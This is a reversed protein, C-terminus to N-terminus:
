SKPNLPTEKKEKAKNYIDLLKEATKEDGLCDRYTRSEYLTINPDIEFSITKAKNLSALAQDCEKLLSESIGLYMYAESLQSEGGYSIAEEFQKKAVAFDGSRFVVKGFELRASTYVDAVDSLMLHRYRSLIGGNPNHFTGWLDLNEKVMAETLPLNDKSILENIIGYPVWFWGDELPYKAYSFVRNQKTNSLLFTHFFDGESPIILSPFLKKISVQYDSFLLKTGHLLIVDQRYNRAYRVYQSTFLTTDRNVLLISNQPLGALLDVGLNEATFDSSYGWFKVFTTGTVILPFLFVVVCFNRPIKGKIYAFGVGIVVSLLVYSPLLFREYTALTFRGALPFSAYFLFGPGMLGIAILFFIFYSRKKRWLSLLGVVILFIGVWTFDIRLYKVFAQIQLLRQIPLAGIVGSSQFTGYDARTVLHIFNSVTTANDWNIISNANAAVWVYIYPLLGLCFLVFVRVLSLGKRGRWVLFVFAPVLFIIMHHHTLSLGFLISAAYLYIPKKTQEWRIIVYTLSIVFLDLLAFVEPTVSYLFFLYNGALVLSAFLASSISRTLLHVLRYTLVIVLAHPLSSLLGVRWAVTLLPIKTLLWGFLTFLPYGPPHPVGFTAAATVLDGSDGAPIGQAQFFIFVLFSLFGIFLSPM